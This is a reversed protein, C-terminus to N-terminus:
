VKSQPLHALPLLPPPDDHILQVPKEPLFRIRRMKLITVFQSECDVLEEYFADSDHHSHHHHDDDDNYVKFLWSPWSLSSRSWLSSWFLKWAVNLASNQEEVRGVLEWPQRAKILSQQHHSHCSHFSISLIVLECAEFIVIAVIVIVIVIILGWLTLSHSSPSFSGLPFRWSGIM